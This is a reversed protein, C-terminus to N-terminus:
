RKWLDDDVQKIREIYGLLGTSYEGSKVLRRIARSPQICELSVDIGTILVSGNRELDLFCTKRNHYKLGFSRISELIFAVSGSHRFDYQGSLVIDDVFRTYQLDRKSAHASVIEDFESMVINAIASSTPAGTPVSGKYTTLKTIISAIRPIFGVNLLARYVMSSNLTPYFNQIDTNFVFRNGTHISANQINDHGIVGGFAAEAVELRSLLEM